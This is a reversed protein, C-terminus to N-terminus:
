ITSTVSTSPTSSPRMRRSSARDAASAAAGIGGM